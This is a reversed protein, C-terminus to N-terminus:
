VFSHQLFSDNAPLESKNNTWKKHRMTASGGTGPLSRKLAHWCRTLKRACAESVRLASFVRLVALWAGRCDFVRGLAGADWVWVDLGRAGSGWFGWVWTAFGLVEVELGQALWGKHGKLAALVVLAETPYHKFPKRSLGLSVNHKM